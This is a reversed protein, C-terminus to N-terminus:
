LGPLVISACTGQGLKSEIELCGGIAGLREQISFLGFGRNYDRRSCRDDKDFGFGDDMIDIRINEDQKRISLEIRQAQAHKIVNFLLERASQFATIKCNEDLPKTQKDDTFVIPINHGEQIQESLSELAAELGLEYLVPPSLEFTLSRTDNITQEILEEVKDFKKVQALDVVSDRLEGLYIKIISLTQGLRDHLETAIHRRQKEETLMLESSLDRLRGQHILLDEAARRRQEIEINLQKNAQVLEVTRIKVQNELEEHSKKLAEEAMVRNITASLQMSVGEVIEVFTLSVRNRRPDCITITGSIGNGAIIPIVAVSESRTQNYDVPILNKEEMSLSSVLYSLHGTYFSGHETINPHNTGTTSSATGAPLFLDSLHCEAAGSVYDFRKLVEYAPYDNTAFINIGVEGCGTIRNIESILENLLPTMEQNRNTIQLFKQSVKLIEENKKLKTIDRLVSIVHPLGHLVIKKASILGELVQGNKRCFKVEFNNLQGYKELETVLTKRDNPEHWFGLDITTRGVAADKSYGSLSTFGQNVGTIFGDSLRSIIVADPSTEFIIRFREESERLSAEAM